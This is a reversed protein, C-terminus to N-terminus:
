VGGATGRPHGLVPESGSAPAPPADEANRRAKELALAQVKRPEGQYPSTWQHRGRRLPQEHM